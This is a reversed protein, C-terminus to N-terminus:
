LPADAAGAADASSTEACRARWKELLEDATSGRPREHDRKDEIKQELVEVPKGWGRNALFEGARIRALTPEDTDLMITTMTEIIEPTTKRSMEVIETLQAPRGGPNGSTGPAFQGNPKRDEM